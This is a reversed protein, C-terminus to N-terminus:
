PGPSVPAAAPNSPQVGTETDEESVPPEAVVVSVQEFGLRRANLEVQNAANGRAKALLDSKEARKQIEAAAEEYLQNYLETPAPLIGKGDLYTVSTVGCPFITPAPLRISVSTGVPEIGARNQDYDIGASCTASAIAVVEKELLTVGGVGLTRMKGPLYVTIEMESYTTKHVVQVNEETIVIVRPTPSPVPAPAAQGAPTDECSLQNIGPILGAGPMRSIQCSIDKFWWIAMVGLLIGALLAIATRM